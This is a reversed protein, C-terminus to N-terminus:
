FPFFYLVLFLLRRYQFFWTIFGVTPINHTSYKEDNLPHTLNSNLSLNNFIDVFFTLSHLRDTIANLINIIYILM